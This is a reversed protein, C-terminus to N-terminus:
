YITNIAHLHITFRLITFDAHWCFFQHREKYVAYYIEM